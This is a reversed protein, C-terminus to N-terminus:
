VAEQRKTRQDFAEQFIRRRVGVKHRVRQADFEVGCFPAAMNHAEIARRLENLSMADAEVRAFHETSASM